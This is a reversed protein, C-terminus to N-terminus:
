RSTDSMTHISPHGRIPSTCSWKMCPSLKTFSPMMIDPFNALLNAVDDGASAISGLHSVAAYISHLTIFTLDFSEILHQGNIDVLYINAILYDAELLPQNFKAINHTSKM